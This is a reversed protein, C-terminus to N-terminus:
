AADVGVVVVVEEAEELWKEGGEFVLGKREGGEVEGKGGVRELEFGNEGRESGEGKEGGEEFDIM